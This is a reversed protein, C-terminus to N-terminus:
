NEKKLRNEGVEYIPINENNLNNVIDIYKLNIDNYKLSWM